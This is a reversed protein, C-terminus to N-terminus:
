RAMALSFGKALYKKILLFLVIAPVFALTGVANLDNWGVSKFNSAGLGAWIGVSATEVAPGTLINAMLFENWILAFAFVATVAIGPLVIPLAVKRFIQKDSAGFLEAAEYTERPLDAFFGRLMWVVVSLIIALYALSMGQYTDWLGEHVFLLFLPLIVIFPSVTRLVLLLAVLIGKGRIRLRALAFGAPVGMLLAIAVSTLAIVASNMVLKPFRGFNLADLYHVPTPNVGGSYYPTGGIFRVGRGSFIPSLDIGYGEEMMITVPWISYLDAVFLTLYLLSERAIKRRKRDAM